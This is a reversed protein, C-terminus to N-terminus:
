KISEESAGKTGAAKNRCLDRKENDAIGDCQVPKNNIEARCATRVAEDNIAYCYGANNEEKAICYAQEDPSLGYCSVAALLIVIGM